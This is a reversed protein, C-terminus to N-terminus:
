LIADPCPPTMVWCPHLGDHGRLMGLLAQNGKLVDAEAAMRQYVLAEHIGLRGMEQRLDAVTDFHGGRPSAGRGIGVDIDLLRMRQEKTDPFESAAAVVGLEPM